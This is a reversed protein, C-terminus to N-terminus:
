SLKMPLTRLRQGSAAFVANAVAPAAAPLGPEGTGTPPETSEVIVTEVVPMEDLTLLPYDDFNKEDVRGDKVTIKGKLAATIGYVFGGEIQAEVTDPNVVIGCDLACIIRHLRVRRDAGVSVEAIQVVPTQFFSPPSLAIGRAHGAPLPTGWGAKAAAMDMAKRMRPMGTVLAKRFELPDKGAAHALEDIFSEVAFVNQSPYVSRWWLVPVATNAMVYEVRFNPIAYPLKVAGEVVDDDLGNKTSGPWKSESISPAVIRHKFAVLRGNGDLGGSLLHYSAPRYMDHTMDDERSWTLKVPAGMAKSVELAQSLADTETRRGFGGGLLTTHVIVNEEHLGTVECAKKQFAQPDQTPAWIECRDKRVDAVCNMPEMTAHALFPLEYIADVRKSANAMAKDFDGENVAVAGPKGSAEIFMKRIDDSSLHANPGEDWIIQLADRGQFAGWTSDAVVAIGSSIRLVRKVGPVSAAQKEDFSKVNGGFVPCQAVAAYLMGPIRIDIGFQATGNVKSPTDIRPIRKGVIRFDKPAKLAVTAPVPLIAAEGALEGYTLKRGTPVHIVHSTETRCASEPVGWRKAAASVLMARATAGATRLAEWSTRISASGGTGMDGYKKGALAQEVKINSWDADLEEALIMPLATLVGQGMESKAVTVAVTGDGDIRLWANPAFATQRSQAFAELKGSWPLHFSLLFGAGALSTVKFFERRRPDFQRKM